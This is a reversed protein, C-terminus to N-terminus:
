PEHYPEPLPQWAIVEWPINVRDNWIWRGVEKGRVIAYEYDMYLTTLKNTYVTVIFNGRYDGCEKKTSLRDKCKIWGGGCDEASREMDALKASLSEITDAADIVTDYASYWKERHLADALERLEKVQESISMRDIRRNILDYSPELINPTAERIEEPSCMEACGHKKCIEYRHCDECELYQNDSDNEPRNGILLDCRPNIKM